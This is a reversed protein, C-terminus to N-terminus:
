GGSKDRRIRRMSTGGMGCNDCGRRNETRNLTRDGNDDVFIDVSFPMDSDRQISSSRYCSVVEKAYDGVLAFVGPSGGWGFPHSLYFFMPDGQLHLETGVLETNMLVVADPRLNIRRFASDM